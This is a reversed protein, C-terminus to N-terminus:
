EHIDLLLMEVIAENKLLIVIMLLTFAYYKKDIYENKFFMISMSM